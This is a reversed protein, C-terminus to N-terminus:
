VRVGAVLEQIIKIQYVIPDSGFVSYVADCLGGARADDQGSAGLSRGRVCLVLLM